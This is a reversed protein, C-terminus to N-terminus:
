RSREFKSLKSNTVIYIGKQKQKNHLGKKQKQAIFFLGGCMGGILVIAGVLLSVTVIMIIGMSLSLVLTGLGWYIYKGKFSKFILPKQLGKYVNYSPYNDM